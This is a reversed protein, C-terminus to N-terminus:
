DRHHDQVQSVDIEAALANGPAALERAPVNHGQRSAPRMISRQDLWADLWIPDPGCRGETQHDCTAVQM